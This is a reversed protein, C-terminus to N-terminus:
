PHLLLSAQIDCVCDTLNPFFHTAPPKCTSDRL